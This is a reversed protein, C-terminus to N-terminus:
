EAVWVMEEEGEAVYSCIYIGGMDEHLAAKRSKRPSMGMNESDWRIGSCNILSNEWVCNKKGGLFFESAM